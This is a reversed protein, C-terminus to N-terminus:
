LEIEMFTSPEVIFEEILTMRETEHEKEWWDLRYRGPPLPIPAWKGSYQGSWIMEEGTELNIFYVQYPLPTNPPVIFKVGSDINITAFGQEPVTIKGWVLDTHGHETQRYVVTYTGPPVIQLSPKGRWTGMLKGDKDLLKYYYPFETIALRLQFGQDIIYDNLKGAEIEIPGLDIPTSSHEKQWWHLHYHGAPVLQIDLTQEFLAVVERSNGRTLWWRYPASIGKPTTIRLGTDIPVEVSGGDVKVMASLLVDNNHHETQRWLIQYEGKSVKLQNTTACGKLKGTEADVICWKYPPIKVWPAPKLIITGFGKIKIRKSKTAIKTSSPAQPAPPPPPPAKEKIVADRVAFLIKRLKKSDSAPYYHGGTTEAICTLQQAAKKDVDFGVTHVIIHAGKQLLEQVLACPNGKCTELGDSVLVVTGPNETDSIISTAQRLSATIPTMGQPMIKDIAMKLKAPDTGTPGIIEIDNCDGKRRHGYVVLGINVHSPIGTLLDKMVQKAVVIKPQGNIRGWMSGSADLIFILDTKGTKAISKSPLILQIILCAVILFFFNQILKLM